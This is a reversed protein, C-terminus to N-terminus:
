KGVNQLRRILTLSDSTFYGVGVNGINRVGVLSESLVKGFNGVGGGTESEKVYLSHFKDTTLIL